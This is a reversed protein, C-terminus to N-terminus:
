PLSHKHLFASVRDQFAEPEDSPPNHGSKEFVALESGKIGQHLEESDEVPTIVDYRGVVILAPAKISGLKSRVDFRPMNYGFAMNQTAYHCRPSPTTAEKDSNEGKEDAEGPPGFIPAIADIATTFDDDDRLNGSWLRIQQAVDPQIQKSNLINAM